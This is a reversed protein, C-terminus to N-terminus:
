TRRPKARDSWTMRIEEGGNLMSRELAELIRVSAYAEEAGTEPEGRTRVCRIFHRCQAELPQAAEYAIERRAGSPSVLIVKAYALDDFILAGRDGCVVIQRSRSPVISSVQIVAQCMAGFWLHVTVSNSLASVPPLCARAAVRTPLMSNLKCAVSIDHPALNWLAGVGARRTEVGTRSAAIHRITGISGRAICRSMSVVAPHFRFVHGVMLVRRRRRALECLARATRSSQVFPKEVLVDKGALLARRVLEAHTDPPTAIVVADTRPDSLVDDFSHTLPVNSVPSTSTKSVQWTLKTAPIAALTKVYNSGWRGVGVVALSVTTM